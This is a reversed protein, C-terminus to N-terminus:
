VRNYGRTDSASRVTSRSIVQNMTTKRALSYAGHPLAKDTHRTPVDKESDNSGTAGGPVTCYRDGRRLAWQPVQGM